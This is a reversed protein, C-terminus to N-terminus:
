TIESQYLRRKKRSADVVIGSKAKESLRVVATLFDGIM